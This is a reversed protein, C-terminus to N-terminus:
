CQRLLNKIFCCSFLTSRDGFDHKQVDFCGISMSKRRVVPLAQGAAIGSIKTRTFCLYRIVPLENM